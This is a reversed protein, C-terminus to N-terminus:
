WRASIRRVKLVEHLPLFAVRVRGPFELDPALLPMVVKCHENTRLSAVLDDNRVGLAFMKWQHVELKRLADTTM